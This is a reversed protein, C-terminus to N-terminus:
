PIKKAQSNGLEKMHIRAKSGLLAFKIEDMELLLKIKGM